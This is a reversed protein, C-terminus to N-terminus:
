YQFQTSLLFKLETEKEVGDVKSYWTALGSASFQFLKAPAYSLGALAQYKTAVTDDDSNKDYIALRGLVGLQWPTDLRLYAAHGLGAVSEDQGAATVDDALLQYGLTLLSDQYGVFGSLFLRELGDDELPLVYNLYAGLKFNALIGGLSKLPTLNAVFWLDKNEDKDSFTKYGAGNVVGLTVEGLSEPLTYRLYLGLDAGEWLKEEDGANKFTYRYGWFKDTLENYPNDIMGLRLSLDKTLDAQLWAYKTYLDYRQSGPIEVSAGGAEVKTSSEPGVDATYRVSLWPNLQAKAGFYFRMLEFSNDHPEKQGDEQVASDQLLYAYRFYATAELTFSEAKTLSPAPATAPPEAAALNPAAVVLTLLLLNLGSRM